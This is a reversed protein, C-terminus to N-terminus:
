FLKSMGSAKKNIGELEASVEGSKIIDLLISSFQKPSSDMRMGFYTGRFNSLSENLARGQRVVKGQGSGLMFWGYSSALESLVYLGFGSNGYINESKSTNTTRSISPKIALKLADLDSYISHSRNLSNAIGVGEDVVAVEVIGGDWRQGCIYCENCESHEFVNRVIERLAYHYLRNEQSYTNTGSLVNALKKTKFMIDEYWADVHQSSMDIDPKNIRTIPLYTISGTAEGVQKGGGMYIFDFFGLHRLYSHVKKPSDHGLKKTEYGKDSRYIVWERIKSGAVLMGAPFSFNLTSCDLCVSKTERHAELEIFFQNLTDRGFKSPFYITIM